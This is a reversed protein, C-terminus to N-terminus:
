YEYNSADRYVRGGSVCLHNHWSAIRMPNNIVKMKGLARGVSDNGTAGSVLSYEDGEAYFGDIQGVRGCNKM